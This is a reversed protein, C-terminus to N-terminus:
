LYVFRCFLLSEWSFSSVKRSVSCQIQCKLTEANFFFFFFLSDFISKEKLVKGKSFVLKEM